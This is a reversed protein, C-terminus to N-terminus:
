RTGAAAPRAAAAPPIEWWGPAPRVARRWDRSSPKTPPSGAPAGTRVCRPVSSIVEVLESPVVCCRRATRDQVAVDVGGRAVHLGRDVRRAALQGGIQRAIGSIALDIGASAGIRIRPAQGRAVRGRPCIYSAAEEIRACFSECISPTPWTITPPLASGPTRTSTLGVWSLLAPSPRSSTRVREPRRSRWCTGLAFRSRRSM